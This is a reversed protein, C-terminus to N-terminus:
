NEACAGRRLEFIRGSTFDGFSETEGDPWRVTVGTVRTEEGLGFHVRPDSSALYSGDPQVSRLVQRTGITAIVMAGHADRGAPTLVRFRVWNGPQSVRNALLYIPADRNVVVLDLGGDDDLDGVAVGRSTHVLAVETGGIPQLQGFRGGTLGRFLVNPEAFADRTSGERRKIRGNAEYIDLLGDNNFDALAVGFRTHKRSVTSLQAEQTADQFYTGENRFLSDPQTELNVVLLDLLEDNNVDGTAVGMGAKVNGHEDVAVGQELAAETFRLSGQNLWLQNITMDNAVFLDLHGNRDFDAGVAGLGNGFVFSIGSVQSVDTFTGDGNNRFLRDAAPANYDNPSCYTSIGREYCDLEANVGWTIYNVLFLDLDGDTDLDHFAAATGWGPHDVGAEASVDEFRGRGDNRLLTNRGVNTVYLDVDGDNDYDGTAVGMGYGRDDAGYAEPARDFRGDGRNFYLQNGPARTKDDTSVLSGGQMLYVDLDGDGDVDALAVGGGMIEPMLHRQAHGSVHQFHIGAASARDEFWIDNDASAHGTCLMLLTVILEGTFRRCTTMRRTM